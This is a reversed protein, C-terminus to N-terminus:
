TQVDSPEDNLLGGVKLLPLTVHGVKGLYRSLPTAAGGFSCCCGWAAAEGPSTPCPPPPSPLPLLSSSRAPGHTLVTDHGPHLIPSTSSHKYPSRPFHPLHSGQPAIPSANTHTYTLLTPESAVTPLTNSTLSSKRSPHKNSHLHLLPSSHSSHGRFPYSVSTNEDLYERGPEQTHPLTFDPQGPTNSCSHSSFLNPPKPFDDATSSSLSLLSLNPDHDLYPEPALTACPPLWSYAQLEAAPSASVCSSAAAM